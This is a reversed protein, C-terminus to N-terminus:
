AIFSVTSETTANNQTRHAHELFPVKVDSFNSEEPVSREIKCIGHGPQSMANRLRDLSFPSYVGQAILLILSTIADHTFKHKSPWFPPPISKINHGTANKGSCAKLVQEGFIEHDFDKTSAIDGFTQECLAKLHPMTDVANQVTNNNSMHSLLCRGAVGIRTLASFNNDRLSKRLGEDNKGCEIPSLSRITIFIFLSPSISIL